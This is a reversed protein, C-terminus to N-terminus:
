QHRSVLFYDGPCRELLERATRRGGVMAGGEVMGDTVEGGLAVKGGVRGVTRCRDDLVRPGSDGAKLGAGV